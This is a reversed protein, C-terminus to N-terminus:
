NLLDVRFLARFGETIFFSKQVNLDLQELDDQRLWNMRQPFGRRHYSSATKTSDREFDDTNFWRDPTRQSAPLAIDRLNSGYYFVNGWDIVEGSQYQWIAGIQWGGFIANMLGTRNLLRKEKGIPLEYIGTAVWRHPRSNDSERWDPEADFENNFFDKSRTHSWEWHTNFTLGSSFRKDFRMQMAHYSNKGIPAFQRNLGTMHPFPRLLQHKAITRGTFFGLTSMQQYLLPNSAQLFEFNGIFFPNPVQRNLDDAIAQNRVLGSAWYKEPLPRLPQGTLDNGDWVGAYLNTVWAGAYAIGFVMNRGIQREIELRWRHQELPKYDSNLFDFGRGLYSDKGLANGFPTNFRTGDERIPFPDAIPPRTLANPFYGWNWTVGQDTTITTDTNRSYGSQNITTHSVNLTDYYIGYGGRLVMKQNLSYAFGLRPM